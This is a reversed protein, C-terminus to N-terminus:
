HGRAASGHQVVKAHSKVAIGMQNVGLVGGFYTDVNRKLAVRVGDLETYQIGLTLGRAPGLM